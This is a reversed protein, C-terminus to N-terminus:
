QVKRDVSKTMVRQGWMVPTSIVLLIFINVTKEHYKYAHQMKHNWYFINSLKILLCNTVKQGLLSQNGKMKFVYGELNWNGIFLFSKWYSFKLSTELIGSCYWSVGHLLTRRWFSFTHQALLLIDCRKHFVFTWKRTWLLGGITGETYLGRKSLIWKLIM